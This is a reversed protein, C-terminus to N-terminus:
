EVVVEEYIHGDEIDFLGQQELIPCPCTDEDCIDIDGQSVDCNCVDCYIREKSM